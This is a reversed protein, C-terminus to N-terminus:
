CGGTQATVACPALHFQLRQVPGEGDVRKQQQPTTVSFTNPKRSAASPTCSASLPKGVHAHDVQGPVDGAVREREAGM